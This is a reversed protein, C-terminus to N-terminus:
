CIFQIWSTFDFSRRCHHRTNKLTYIIQNSHSHCILSTLTLYHSLEPITLILDVREQTSDAKVHTRSRLHRGTDKIPFPAIHTPRSQSLINYLSCWLGINSRRHQWSLFSYPNVVYEAAPISLDKYLLNDCFRLPFPLISTSPPATLHLSGLDSFRSLVWWRGM